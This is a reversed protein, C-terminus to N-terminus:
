VNCNHSFFSHFHFSFLFSLFFCHFFFLYRFYLFTLAASWDHKSDDCFCSSSEETICENEDRYRDNSVTFSVNEHDGWMNNSNTSYRVDIDHIFDFYCHAANKPMSGNQEHVFDRRTQHQHMWIDHHKM